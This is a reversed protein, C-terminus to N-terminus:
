EPHSLSAARLLVLGAALEDRPAGGTGQGASEARMRPCDSKRVRKSAGRIVIEEWSPLKWRWIGTGQLHPVGITGQQAVVPKHAQAPILIHVCGVTQQAERTLEM